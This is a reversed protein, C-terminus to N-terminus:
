HIKIHPWHRKQRQVIRVQSRVKLQQFFLFPFCRVDMCSIFCINHPLTSSLSFALLWWSDIEIELTPCSDTNLTLFGSPMPEWRISLIKKNWPHCCSNHQTHIHVIMYHKSHWRLSQSVYWTPVHQVLQVQIEIEQTVKCPLRVSRLEGHACGASYTHCWQVHM